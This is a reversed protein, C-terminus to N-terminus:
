WKKFREMIINIMSDLFSRQKLNINNADIVRKLINSITRTTKGTEESIKDYTINENKERLKKGVKLIEKLNDKDYYQIELEDIAKEIEYIEQIEFSEIIIDITNKLTELDSTKTIANNINVKKKITYDFEHTHLEPIASVLVTVPNYVKKIKSMLTSGDVCPMAQDCIVVEPKESILTNTIIEADKEKIVKFAKVIINSDNYAKKFYEEILEIYDENDDIFFVKM